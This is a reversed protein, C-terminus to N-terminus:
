GRLSLGSLPCPPCDSVLSSPPPLAGLALYCCTHPEEAQSGTTRALVFCLVKPIPPGWRWRQVHHYEKSSLSQTVTGVVQGNGLSGTSGEKKM